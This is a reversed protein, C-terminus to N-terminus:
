GRFLCDAMLFSALPDNKELGRRIYELAKAVDQAVGEGNLYCHALYAQSSDRFFGNEGDEDINKFLEFALKADKSTGIGFLKCYAVEYQAQTNDEDNELAINFMNFAQEPTGFGNLYIRGLKLQAEIHDNEAAAEYWEVAESMNRFRTYEAVAYMADSNGMSAARVFFEYAKYDNEGRYCCGIGYIIHNLSLMFVVFVAVAAGIAIGVNKMNVPGLQRGQSDKKVVFLDILAWLSSIGTWCLLLQVIGIGTRGLYFNHIGLGGFLIGLMLYTTRSKPSTMGAPNQMAVAAAANCPIPNSAAACSPAPISAAASGSNQPAGCVDCFKAGAPLEVNCKVCRPAANNVNATHATANAPCNNQPAGCIDCFKSGELLEVNCKICNM